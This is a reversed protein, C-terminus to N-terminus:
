RVAGLAALQSEIQAALARAAEPPLGHETCFSASLELADQGAGVDLSLARGDGLEVGLQFLVHREGATAGDDAADAAVPHDDQATTSDSVGRQSPAASPEDVGLRARKQTGQVDITRGSSVGDGDGGGGDGDGGNDAAATAATAELQHLMQAADPRLMRARWPPGAEPALRLTSRHNGRDRFWPKCYCLYLVQPPYRQCCLRHLAAWM